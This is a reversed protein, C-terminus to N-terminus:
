AKKKRKTKFRAWRCGKYIERGALIHFSGIVPGKPPNKKKQILLVVILMSLTPMVIM